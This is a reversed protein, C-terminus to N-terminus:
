CQGGVPRIETVNIEPIDQEDAGPSRDAASRDWDQRDRDQAEPSVGPQDIGSTGVPSEADDKLTGTVEVRQGVFQQFERDGTLSYVKDREPMDDRRDQQAFQDPQEPQGAQGPQAPQADPQDPQAHGPQHGERETGTTGIAGAQGMRVQTLVFENGTPQLEPQENRAESLFEDERQVCGVFTVQQGDAHHQARAEGAHSDPGAPTQAAVVTFSLLAAACTSGVIRYIM